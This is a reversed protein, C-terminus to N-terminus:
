AAQRTIVRLGHARRVCERKTKPASRVKTPGRRVATPRREVPKAFAGNLSLRIKMPKMGKGDDWDVIAVAMKSPTQFTYAMLCRNGFADLGEKNFRVTEASVTVQSANHQMRLAQAFVCRSATEHGAADIVEQTINLTLQPIPTRPYVTKV